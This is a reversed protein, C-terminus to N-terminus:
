DAAGMLAAGDVHLSLRILGRQAPNEANIRSRNGRRGQCMFRTKNQTKKTTIINNSIRKECAAHLLTIKKGEGRQNENIKVSFVIRM